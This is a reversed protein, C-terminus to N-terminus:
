CDVTRYGKRLKSYLIENFFAYGEVSTPFTDKRVQGTTGIRGWRRTVVVASKDFADYELEYFKCHNREPDVLELKEITYKV